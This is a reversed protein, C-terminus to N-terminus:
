RGAFRQQTRADAMWEIFTAPFPNGAQTAERQEFTWQSRALKWRRYSSRAASPLVKQDITYRLGEDVPELDRLTIPFGDDAVARRGKPALQAHALLGDVWTGDPRHFGELSARVAPTVFWLAKEAHDRTFAQYYASLVKRMRDKRKVSVEIEIPYLMGNVVGILDPWHLEPGGRLPFAFWRERGTAEVSPRCRLGMQSAVLAATSADPMSELSRFERETLMSSFATTSTLFVDCTLSRHIMREDSPLSPAALAAPQEDLGAVEMGAQTPWIVTGAWRLNDTRRLLGSDVMFTVRQRTTVQSARYILDRAHSQMMGGFRGAVDLVREDEPMRIWGSGREVGASTGQALRRRARGVGWRSNGTRAAEQEAHRDWPSKVVDQVLDALGDCGEGARVPRFM